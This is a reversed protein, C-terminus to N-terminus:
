GGEPDAQILTAALEGAKECLAIRAAAAAADLYPQVPPPHGNAIMSGVRSVAAAFFRHIKSRPPPPSLVAGLSPSAEQGVASSSGSASTSAGNKPQPVEALASLVPLLSGLSSAPAEGSGLIEVLLSATQM